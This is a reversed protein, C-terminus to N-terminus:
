SIAFSVLLVQMHEQLVIVVNCYVVNSIHVSM